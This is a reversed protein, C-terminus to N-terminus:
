ADGGSVWLDGNGDDLPATADMSEATEDSEAGQARHDRDPGFIPGMVFNSHNEATAPSPGSPGSLNWTAGRQIHTHARQAPAQAPAHMHTHTPHIPGMPGM